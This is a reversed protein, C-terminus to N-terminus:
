HIHEAPDSARPRPRVQSICSLGIVYSLICVIAIFIEKRRRLLQPWEDVMATVFGEMTCFQFHLRDAIGPRRLLTPEKGSLGAWHPTVDPLLSLVLHAVGPAAAGRISVRPLRSGSRLGGSRLGAKATRPGHVRGGFIHRLGRVHEHELQGLLRDLRRQFPRLLDNPNM